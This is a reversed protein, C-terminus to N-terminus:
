DNWEGRPALTGDAWRLILHCFVIAFGFTYDALTSVIVGRNV